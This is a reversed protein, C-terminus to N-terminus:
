RWSPTLPSWAGPRDQRPHQRATRSRHPQEAAGGAFDVAITADDPITGPRHTNVVAKLM